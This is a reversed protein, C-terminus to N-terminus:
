SEADEDDADEIEGDNDDDAAGAAEPTIAGSKDFMGTQPDAPPTSGVPGCWEVKLARKPRLEGDAMVQRGDGVCQVKVILTMEDGIEPPDELKINTARFGVYAGGNDVTEEAM